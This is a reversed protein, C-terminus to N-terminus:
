ARRRSPRIQTTWRARSRGGSDYGKLSRLAKDVGERTLDKNKCALDLAAGTVQSSAYGFLSGVHVPM